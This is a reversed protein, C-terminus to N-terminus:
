AKVTLLFSCIGESAFMDRLQFYPLDNLDVNPLVCFANPLTRLEFLDTSHISQMTSMTTGMLRQRKSRSFRGTSDELLGRIRPSTPPLCLRSVSDPSPSRVVINPPSTPPAGQPTLRHHGKSSLSVQSTRMM